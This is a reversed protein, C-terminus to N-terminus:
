LNHSDRKWPWNVPDMKAWYFHGVNLCEKVCRKDEIQCRQIIAILFESLLRAGVQQRAPRRVTVSPNPAALFTMPGKRCM